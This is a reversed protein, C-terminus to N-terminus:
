SYRASDCVDLRYTGDPGIAVRTRRIAGRERGLRFVSLWEGLGICVPVYSADVASTRTKDRCIRFVLTKTKVDVALVYGGVAEPMEAPPRM